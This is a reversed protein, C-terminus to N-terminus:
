PAARLSSVRSQWWSNQWTQRPPYEAIALQHETFYEELAKLFDGVEAQNMKFCNHGDGHPTDINIGRSKFFRLIGLDYLAHFPDGDQLKVFANPRNFYNLLVELGGELLWVERKVGSEDTGSRFFCLNSM